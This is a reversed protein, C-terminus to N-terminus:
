SAAPARPPALLCLRHTAVGALRLGSKGVAARARLLLGAACRWGSRAGRDPHAPVTRPADLDRGLLARRLLSSRRVAARRPRARTRAPAEVACLVRVARARHPCSRPRAPPEGRRAGGSRSRAANGAVALLTCRQTGCEVGRVACLRTALPRLGRSVGCRDTREPRAAGGPRPFGP